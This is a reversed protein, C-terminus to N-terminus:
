LAASIANASSDFSDRTGNALLTVSGICVGVILALMVAYEVATPGSEDELFRRIAKSMNIREPASILCLVPEHSPVRDILIYPALFTSAESLSDKLMIAPTRLSDPLVTGVVRDQGLFTADETVESHSRQLQFLHVSGYSERKSCDDSRREIVGCRLPM